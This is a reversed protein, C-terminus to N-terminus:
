TNGPVCYYVSYYYIGQTKSSLPAHRIITPGTFLPAINLKTRNQNRPQHPRTYAAPTPLAVGPLSLASAQDESVDAPFLQRQKKKM